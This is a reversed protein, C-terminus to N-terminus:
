TKPQTLNNQIKDGIIMSVDRLGEMYGKHTAADILDKEDDHFWSTFFNRKFKKTAKVHAASAIVVIENLVEKLANIDKEM